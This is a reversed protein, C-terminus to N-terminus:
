GSLSMYSATRPHGGGWKCHTHFLLCDFWCINVYSYEIKIIFHYFYIQYCITMYCVHLSLKCKMCMCFANLYHTVKNICSLCREFLPLLHHLIVVYSPTDSLEHVLTM